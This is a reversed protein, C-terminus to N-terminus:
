GHQRLSGSHAVVDNREVIRIMRSAAISRFSNIAGEIVIRRVLGIHRASYKGHPEEFTLAFPLTPRM